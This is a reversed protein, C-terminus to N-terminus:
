QSVPLVVIGLAASQGGSMNRPTVITVHSGVALSGAKEPPLINTRGTIALTYTKGDRAEVTISVDPTYATVVGVLHVRLPKSAPVLIARAALEGGANRTAQILVYQGVSLQAPGLMGEPGVAVTRTNPALGMTVSSGDRLTLTLSATEVASVTGIFHEPKDRNQMAQLTAFREAVATAQAGPTTTGQAAPSNVPSAVVQSTVTLLGLVLTLLFFMRLLKM